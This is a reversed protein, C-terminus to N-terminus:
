RPTEELLDSSASCPHSDVSGEVYVANWTGGEGADSAWTGSLIRVNVVRGDLQGSFGPADYDLILSSGERTGDITAVEGGPATIAGSLAGGCDDAILTLAYDPGKAGVRIIGDYQGFLIAQGAMSAGETVPSRRAGLDAECSTLLAAVALLLGPARNM